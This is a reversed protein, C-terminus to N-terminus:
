LYRYGRTKKKIETKKKKENPNAWVKSLIKFSIITQIKKKLLIWVSKWLLYLPFEDYWM